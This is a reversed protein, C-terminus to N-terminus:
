TTKALEEALLKANAYESDYSPDIDELTLGQPAVTRLEEPTTAADIAPDSPADRLAQKKSVIVSTDANTELAKMYEADLAELKDKRALRIKNRWINRAKTMDVSIVGDEPNGGFTWAERFVREDPTQYDASNATLVGIKIFTTM